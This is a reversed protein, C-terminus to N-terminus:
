SRIPDSNNRKEMWVNMSALFRRVISRQPANWTEIPAMSHPRWSGEDGPAFLRSAILRGLEFYSEWQAEDFFQDLTTQQPFDPNDMLYRMLDAPGRDTLRPKVVILTGPEGAAYDIRALMAIASAKETKRAFADPAAFLMRVAPDCVTTALEEEGLFHISAGFDIRCKRVLNALDLFGYHPDCGNDSAVIFRVKRRVLEYVATNEFHGGDSLYWLPRDIGHFSALMESLLLRYSGFRRNGCRDSNWWYGLRVNALFALVSKALSTYSGLGTTFAAGSIAVWTSIPLAQGAPPAAEDGDELPKITIRADATESYSMGDPTIALNLGHRDRQVTAPGKGRTANITVNVIHVPAGKRTRRYYDALGMDDYTQSEDVAVAQATNAEPGAAPASGGGAIALGIRSPNSAGLYARRLRAAYFTALSSLNAFARTLWALVVFVALAITAPPYHDALEYSSRSDASAADIDFAVLHALSGWSILAASAFLFAALWAFAPGFRRLFAGASPTGTGGSFLTQIASLRKVLSRAIPIAATLTVTLFVIAEGWDPFRGALYLYAAAITDCLALLGVRIFAQASYSLCDTLSKRTRDEVIAALHDKGAGANSLATVGQAASGLEKRRARWRLGLWLAGVLFATLAFGASVDALVRGEGDLNCLCLVFGGVLIMGTGIVPPRWLLSKGSVDSMTLWYAWGSIVAGLGFFPLLAFLPSAWFLRDYPIQGAYQLMPGVLVPADDKPIQGLYALLWRLAVRMSDLVLVALMIAIGVIITLTLWNRCLLAFAFIYDRFGAPTLYRGSQRLYRLARMAGDGGLLDGDRHRKENEPDVVPKLKGRRAFLGCYFVGAYGGGSVTSLYDARQLLHHEGLGRLLGLSFTASRIGGGSLALGRLPVNGKIGYTKRRETVAEAEKAFGLAEIAELVTSAEDSSM